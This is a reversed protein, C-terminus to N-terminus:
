RHKLKAYVHFGQGESVGALSYISFDKILNM